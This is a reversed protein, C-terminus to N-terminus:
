EFKTLNYACFLKITKTATPHHFLDSNM